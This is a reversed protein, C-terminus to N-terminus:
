QNLRVIYFDCSRAPLVGMCSKEGNALKYVLAHYVLPACTFGPLTLICRKGDCRVWIIYAQGFHSKEWVRPTWAL